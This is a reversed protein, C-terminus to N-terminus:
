STHGLPSSATVTRARIKLATSPHIRRVVWLLRDNLFTAFNDNTTLVALAVLCTGLLAPPNRLFFALYCAACLILYNSRYYYGQLVLLLVVPTCSFVLDARQSSRNHGVPGTQSSTCLAERYHRSRRTSERQMKTKSDM